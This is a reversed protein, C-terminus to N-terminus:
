LLKIIHMFFDRSHSNSAPIRPPLRRGRTQEFNIKISSQKFLLSTSTKPHNDPVWLPHDDTHQTSRPETSMTSAKAALLATTNVCSSHRYDTSTSPSEKLTIWARPAALGELVKNPFIIVSIWRRTDWKLQLKQWTLLSPM